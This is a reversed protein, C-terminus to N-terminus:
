FLLSFVTDIDSSLLAELIRTHMSNTICPVSKSYCIIHTKVNAAFFYSFLDACPLSVTTMLHDPLSFFFTDPQIFVLIFYAATDDEPTTDPSRSQLMTQAVNKNAHKFLKVAKLSNTCSSLQTNIKDPSLCVRGVLAPACCSVLSCLVLEDFENVMAQKTAIKM